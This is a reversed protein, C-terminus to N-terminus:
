SLVVRTCIDILKADNGTAGEPCKNEYRTTGACTQNWFMNRNDLRGECYRLCATPISSTPFPRPTTATTPDPTRSTTSTTPDPTGSTTATTPDPTGSTAETTPDPTRSTTATTPDPIRSTAETTPDPTRSTTATTPDPTRSTAETPPDPTIPSESSTSSATTSTTSASPTPSATSTTSPCIDGCACSLPQQYFDPLELIKECADTVCHISYSYGNLSDYNGAPSGLSPGWEVECSPKLQDMRVHDAFISDGLSHCKCEIATAGDVRYSMMFIVETPPYNTFCYDVCEDTTYTLNQFESDGENWGPYSEICGFYHLFKGSDAHEYRKCEDGLCYVSAFYTNDSESGCKYYSSTNPCTDCFLNNNEQFGGNEYKNFDDFDEAFYCNFDKCQPECNEVPRIFFYKHRPSAMAKCKKVPDELVSIHIDVEEVGRTSVEICKPFFNMWDQWLSEPSEGGFWAPDKMSQSDSIRDCYTMDGSPSLGDSCYLAFSDPNQGSVCQPDSGTEAGCNGGIDSPSVQFVNEGDNQLICICEKQSVSYFVYSFGLCVSRLCPELDVDTEEYVQGNEPSLQDIKITVSRAKVCTWYFFRDERPFFQFEVDDDQNELRLPKNKLLMIFIILKM